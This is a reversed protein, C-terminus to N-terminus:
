IVVICIADMGYGELRAVGTCYSLCPIHSELEELFMPLLGADVDQIIFAGMFHLLSELCGTDVELKDGGMKMPTICGFSCDAGQLVM